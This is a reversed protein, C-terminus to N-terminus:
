HDGGSDHDTDDIGAIEITEVYIEEDGWESEILELVTGRPSDHHLKWREGNIKDRLIVTDDSFAREVLLEATEQANAGHSNNFSVLLGPRMGMAISQYHGRERGSAFCGGDTRVEPGHDEWSGTELRRKLRDIKVAKEADIQEDGFIVRLQELMVEVDAIEEEVGGDYTESDRWAALAAVLEALEGIAIGVQSKAGWRTVAEEYPSRDTM